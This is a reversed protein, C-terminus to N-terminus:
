SYKTNAPKTVPKLIAAWIHSHHILTVPLLCGFDQGSELDATLLTAHRDIFFMFRNQKDDAKSEGLLGIFVIQVLALPFRHFSISSFSSCKGALGSESM